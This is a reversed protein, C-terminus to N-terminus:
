LRSTNTVLESSPHTAVLIPCTAEIDVTTRKGAHHFTSQENSTKYTLSEQHELVCDSVSISSKLTLTSIM